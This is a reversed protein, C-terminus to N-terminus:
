AEQEIYLEMGRQIAATRTMRRAFRVKEFPELLVIPVNLHIHKWPKKENV